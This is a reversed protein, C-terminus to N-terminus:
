CTAASSPNRDTSSDAIVYMFVVAHMLVATPGLMGLMGLMFMGFLPANCLNQAVQALLSIAQDVDQAAIALLISLGGMLVTIGRSWRVIRATPATDLGRIGYAQLVDM